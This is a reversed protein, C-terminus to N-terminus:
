RAVGVVRWSGFRKDLVLVVLETGIKTLAYVRGTGEQVGAPASGFLKRLGAATYIKAAKPRGAERSEDSLSRLIDSLEKRTKAIPQLGAYFPLGTRGLLKDVNGEALHHLWTNAAERAAPDAAKQDDTEAPGVSPAVPSPRPPQPPSAGAPVPGHAHGHDHGYASGPMPMPGEPGAPAAGSSRTLRRGRRSGGATPRVEVNPDPRDGQGANDLIFPQAGFTGCARQDRHFAWHIYVKGNGSRIERPPNPFPGAAWMVERAAADFVMSGSHRVTIVRDITGDSNLVLEMRTWLGYDNMPHRPSKLDLQDLFGWAWLDHIQRHMTAIYRAFPHRRSNLATQNGVRVEPIMNELPSQWHERPGDWIGKQQSRREAYAHREADVDRGFVADLDRQTIRFRYREDNRDVRARQEQALMSAEEKQRPKLSGDPSESTMPEQALQGVKHDRRELERMSLLTQPKPDQQQPREEKPSPREPPAKRELRSKQERAEAVKADDATGVEPEKSPEVQQARPKIADEVLNTIKARTQEKVKRDINSLYDADAPAEEEDLEDPQEVMKMQDLFFDQEEPTEPEPEKPEQEPEKEPKPEPLEEFDLEPTREKKPRPRLALRKELLESRKTEASESPDPRLELYTVQLRPKADFAKQEFLIGVALLGGLNVLLSLLLCVALTHAPTRRM